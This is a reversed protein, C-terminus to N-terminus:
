REARQEAAPYPPQLQSSALMQAEKRVPEPVPPPPPLVPEVIPEVRADGVPGPDFKIEVDSKEGLPMTDLPKLYVKPPVYKIVTEQRVPQKEIQKPQPEPPPPEIDKIPIVVTRTFKEVIYESKALMLATLAAAHLAIVIALSGPSRTKQELFGGQPM